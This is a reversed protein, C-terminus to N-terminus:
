NQRVVLNESEPYRFIFPIVLKVRLNGNLVHGEGHSIMIVFVKSQTTHCNLSDRGNSNEAFTSM